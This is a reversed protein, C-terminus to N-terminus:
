DIILVTAGNKSVAKHSLSNDGVIYSMGSKLIHPEHEKYEILLEGQIVYVIHGKDCWHDAKYARSYEVQRTQIDGSKKTKVIAFGTEGEVKEESIKAWDINQPLLNEIVM